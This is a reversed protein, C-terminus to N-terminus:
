GRRADGTIALIDLFGEALTFVLYSLLTGVSLGIVLRRREGTLDALHTILFGSAVRVWLAVSLVTGIEAAGLGKSSLWVPWFPLLIGIVEFVAGYYLSLRVAFLSLLPVRGARPEKMTDATVAPSPEQPQPTPLSLSPLNM